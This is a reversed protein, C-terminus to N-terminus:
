SDVEPVKPIGLADSIQDDITRFSHLAYDGVPECAGALENGDDDYYRGRSASLFCHQLLVDDRELPVNALTEFYGRSWPLRNTLIPSVLLRDPRIASRDPLAKTGSRDRYLYILIAPDAGVALTWQANTSVVRGFLYTGDPLGVAFVDGPQVQKRSPKLIQINTSAVDAM